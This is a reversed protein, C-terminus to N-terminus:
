ELLPWFVALLITRWRPDQDEGHARFIPRLVEDKRPDTSTGTRMFAIVDAWTGFQRLFPEARQLNRLLDRYECTQLERKLWERDRDRTASAM